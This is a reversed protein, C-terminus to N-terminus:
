RGIKRRMLKGGKAERKADLAIGRAEMRQQCIIRAPVWDTPAGKGCIEGHDVVFAFLDKRLVEVIGEGDDPDDYLTRAHGGHRKHCDMVEDLQRKNVSVSGIRKNMKITLHRFAGHSCCPKRREM